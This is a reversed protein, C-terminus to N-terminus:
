RKVNFMPNRSRILEVEMAVLVDTRTNGPLAHLELLLDDSGHEWLWHALGRNDSHELHKRIRHKLNKSEGVYLVNQRDIFLYLGQQVPVCNLDLGKVPFSLVQEALVVRALIEPTLSRAKRLNLAAWRYQLPLYGPAIQAALQDLESALDPDCIVDDLSVRERRELHRIAMEAAFRYEDENPFSTRKSRSLGALLGAKRLNLLTQNLVRPSDDLDNRVCEALFLRNLEPDAVVRDASYGGRVAVFAAFVKERNM